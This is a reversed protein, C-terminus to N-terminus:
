CGNFSILHDPRVYLKFANSQWRGMCKIKEDSMGAVAASTAAGIRFSHASFRFPPFGAIRLGERLKCTFQKATLPEGGFHRFFLGQGPPRINVFHLVARVPCLFENVNSDITLITARGRQDTKSHRLVVRLKLTDEQVVSIDGIELAHSSASNKSVCTFESVRLFGFFALLFAARFLVAEYFSICVSPLMSVLKCLIEVTIPCRSDQNPHLRKCGEKMKSVIFSSTPDYWENIKHIYSIASLYTCISSPAAGQLNLDAIYAVIESLHVPWGAGLGRSGRFVLFNRIANEYTKRTNESLSAALIQQVRQSLDGM